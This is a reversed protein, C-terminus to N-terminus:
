RHEQDRRRRQPPEIGRRRHEGIVRDEAVERAVEVVLVHLEGRGQPPGSELLERPHHRDDPQDRADDIDRRKAGGPGRAGRTAADTRDRDRQDRREAARDEVELTPRQAVRDIGLVDLLREAAPDLGRVEDDVVRVRRLDLRLDRHDGLVM